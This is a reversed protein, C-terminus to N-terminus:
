GTARVAEFRLRRYDATWTGSEADFLADRCRDEVATVIERRESEDPGALLSDGFMGLWNRLGELGGDLETPRDFLRALRVEFGHRELLSAQEGVTPFYWPSSAEYGRGALEQITADVIAAVNGHGGMEAVFRGGASESREDGSRPRLADAVRGVVADQDTMWHLAANSFVADFSEGPDYETVDAREFALGPYQERAETIMEASQDVGVVDGEDGVAAAIEATLHGTGCGLDLIRDGPEPDLLGVVSAGMEHVFAHDGDYDGADWRNTPGGESM